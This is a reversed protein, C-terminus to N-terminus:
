NNLRNFNKKLYELVISHNGAKFNENLPYNQVASSVFDHISSEELNFEDIFYKKGYFTIIRDTLKIESIYKIEKRKMDYYGSISKYIFDVDMGGTLPMLLFMTLVEQDTLIREKRVGKFGPIGFDDVNYQDSIGSNRLDDLINGSLGSSNVIVEDLENVFEDLWVNLLVSDFLEKNLIIKKRAFQIGSFVIEDNLSAKIKFRGDTNTITAEGNSNNLVHIGEISFNNNNRIYGEIIKEQIDQSFLFGSSLLLVLTLHFKM